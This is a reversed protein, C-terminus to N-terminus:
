FEAYRGNRIGLITDTSDREAQVITKQLLLNTNWQPYGDSDKKLNLNAITRLISRTEKKSSWIDMKVASITQTQSFEM